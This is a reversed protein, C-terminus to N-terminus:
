KAGNIYIDMALILDYDNLINKNTPTHLSPHINKMKLFDISRKAMGGTFKPALGASIIELGRESYKAKFTRFSCPQLLLQCFM